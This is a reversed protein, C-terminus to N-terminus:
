NDMRRYLFQEPNKPANEIKNRGDEEEFRFLKSLM